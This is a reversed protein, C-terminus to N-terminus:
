IGLIPFDRNAVVAEVGIGVLALHSLDLLFIIREQNEFLSFLSSYNQSNRKKPM